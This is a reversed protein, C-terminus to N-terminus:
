KPLDEEVFNKQEVKARLDVKKVKATIKNSQDATLLLKKLATDFFRTKRILRVVDLESIM